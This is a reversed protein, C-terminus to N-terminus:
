GPCYDSCSSALTFLSLLVLSFHVCVMQNRAYEADNAGLVNGKKALYQLIAGSQNLVIDGELLM